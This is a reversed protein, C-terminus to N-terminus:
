ICLVIMLCYMPESCRVDCLIRRCETNGMAIEHLLHAIILTPDCAQKEPHDPSPLTHSSHTSSTLTYLLNLLHVLLDTVTVKATHTHTHM